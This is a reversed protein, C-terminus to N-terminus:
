SRGLGRGTLAKETAPVARAGPRSGEEQAGMALLSPRGQLVGVLVPPGEVEM